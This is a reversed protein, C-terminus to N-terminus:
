KLEYSNLTTTTSDTLSYTINRILGVGKKYLDRSLLTNSSKDYTLIELLNTYAYVVADNKVVVLTDVMDGSIWGHGVVPNVPVIITEAGNTLKVINGKDDKRLFVSDQKSNVLLYYTKGNKTITGTIIQKISETLSMDPTKYVWMNGLTLPIYSNPDSNVSTSDKDKSCSTFLITAVIICFFSFKAKM